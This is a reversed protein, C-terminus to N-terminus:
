VFARRPPRDSAADRKAGDSAALARYAPIEEDTLLCQDLLAFIAEQRLGQGMFVLEQRRDGWEGSFRSRIADKSDASTPWLEPAADAWWAAHATLELQPGTHTWYLARQPDHAVWVFGKSRFVGALPNDEAVPQTKADGSVAPTACAQDDLTGPLPPLRAEVAESAPCSFRLGGSGIRVAAEFRAQQSAPLRSLVRMALRAPHFPRRRRYVVCEVGAHLPPHATPSSVAVESDKRVAGARGPAINVANATSRRRRKTPRVEEETRRKTPRVEEETTGEDVHLDPEQHPSSTVTNSQTNRKRVALRALVAKPDLFGFESSIVDARPNIARIKKALTELETKDVLDKKNIIVMDADRVQELM